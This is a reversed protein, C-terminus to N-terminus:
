GSPKLSGPRCGYRVHALRWAVSLGTLGMVAAFLGVPMAEIQRWGGPLPLQEPGRHATLAAESSEGEVVQLM